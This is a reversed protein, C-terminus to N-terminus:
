NAAGPELIRRLRYVGHTRRYGLQDNVHRIGANNEENDTMLWPLGLAAARAHVQEKVLRALGRGRQAPDVGTYALGGEATDPKVIAHALAAPRGDVRALCAVPQEGPDDDHM